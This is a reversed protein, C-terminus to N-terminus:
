NVSRLKVFTIGAELKPGANAQFLMGTRGSAVLSGGRKAAVVYEGALGGKQYSGMSSPMLVDWKVNSTRAINKANVLAFYQELQSGSHPLFECLVADVAGGRTFSCDMIGISDYTNAAPASVSLATLLSASLALIRTIKKM